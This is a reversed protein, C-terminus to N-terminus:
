EAFGKERLATLAAEAEPVFDQWVSCDADGLATGNWRKAPRELEADTIGPYLVRAMARAMLWVRHDLSRGDIDPAAQKRRMEIIADVLPQGEREAEQSAGALACNAPQSRPDTAMAARRLWSFGEMANVAGEIFAHRMLADIHQEMRKTFSKRVDDPANRNLHMPSVVNEIMANLNIRAAWVDAHGEIAALSLDATQPDTRKTMSEEGLNSVVVHLPGRSVLPWRFMVHTILAQVESGSWCGEDPLWERLCLQDYVQFPRDHRRLEATKESNYVLAFWPPVTKLEHTPAGACRPRAEATQPDTTM